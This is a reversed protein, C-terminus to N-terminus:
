PGIWRERRDGMLQLDYDATPDLEDNECVEVKPIGMLTPM